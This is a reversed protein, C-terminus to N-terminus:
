PTRNPSFNGTLTGGYVKILGTGGGGGGGGYTNVDEGRSGTASGTGTGGSGGSGGVGGNSFSQSGPAENANTAEQGPAGLTGNGSGEGGGGGNAYVVGNNTITMADLGIMGGSGGGGGGAGGAVGPHGGEGSANIQGGLSITISMEAILYVAGGGNGGQGPMGRDGNQGRCGGRLGMITPAVGPVGGEDAGGTISNGGNGGPTTLTGGAGGGGSTPGTGADCAGGAPNAGAGVFATTYMPPALGRHSAADLTGSIEIANTAVLVLPKAGRVHVLEEVRITEAAIVCLGDAGRLVATCTGAMDTDVPDTLTVTGMPATAFCPQVLGDSAGYCFDDMGGDDGGGEGVCDGSKDGANDGYRQGTVTCSSDNYSCLNDPQCTGLGKANCQDNTTCNFAGAGGSCGSLAAALLGAALALAKAM